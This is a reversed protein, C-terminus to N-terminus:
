KTDVDEYLAAHLDGDDVYDGGLEYQDEEPAYEEGSCFVV